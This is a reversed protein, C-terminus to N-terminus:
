LLIRFDLMVEIHNQNRGSVNLINLLVSTDIFRINM